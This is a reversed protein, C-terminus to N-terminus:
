LLQWMIARESALKWRWYKDTMGICKVFMITIIDYNIASLVLCLLLIISVIILLNIVLLLHLTEKEKTSWFVWFFVPFCSRRTELICTKECGIVFALSDAVDKHRSFWCRFDYVFFAKIVTEFIRIQTYHVIGIAMHCLVSNYIQYGNSKYSLQVSFLDKVSTFIPPM